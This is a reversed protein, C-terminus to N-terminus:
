CRDNQRQTSEHVIKRKRDDFNLPRQLDPLGRMPTPSSAALRGIGTEWRMMGSQKVAMEVAIIRAERSL